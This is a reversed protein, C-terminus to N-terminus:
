RLVVRTAPDSRPGGDYNDNKVAFRIGAANRVKIHQHRRCRTITAHAPGPARAALPALPSAAAPPALSATLGSLARRMARRRRRAWGLTTAQSAPM